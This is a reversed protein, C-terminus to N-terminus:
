TLMFLFEFFSNVSIRNIVVFINLTFPLLASIFFFNSVIFFSFFLGFVSFSIFKFQHYAYNVFAFSSVAAVSSSKRQQEKQLQKQQEEFKRLDFEIENALRKDAALVDTVHLADCVCM